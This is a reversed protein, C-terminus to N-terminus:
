RAWLFDLFHPCKKSSLDFCLTLVDGAPSFADESNASVLFLRLRQVLTGTLFTKRNRSPHLLRRYISLISRYQSLVPVAGLCARGNQAGGGANVSHAMPGIPFRPLLSSFVEVVTPAIHKTRPSPTDLARGHVPASQQVAEAGFVLAPM